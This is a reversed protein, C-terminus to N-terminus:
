TGVINGENNVGFAESNRGPTLSGLNETTGNSWLFAENNGALTTTEGVVRGSDNIARAQSEFGNSIDLISGSAWIVARQFGNPSDSSFGVGTGASNLAM